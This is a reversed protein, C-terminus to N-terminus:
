KSTSLQLAKRHLKQIRFYFLLACVGLGVPFGLWIGIENYGGMFAAWYSFPIAVGFYSIITLIGPITADAMGRLISSYIIQFADFLQFIVLVVIMRSALEIVEVDNTFLRVPVEKLVGPM